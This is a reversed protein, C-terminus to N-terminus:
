RAQGRDIRHQHDARGRRACADPDGRGPEGPVDGQRERGHINDWEAESMEAIPRATVVGAANVVVDVRGFRDVTRAFMADVAGADAVDGDVAFADAGIEAAVDKAASYGGIHRNEYQNDASPAHELGALALKMGERAFGHAIGKGIGTGGGTVLAVKGALDSM